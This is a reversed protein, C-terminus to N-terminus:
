EDLYCMTIPILLQCVWIVAKYWLLWSRINRVAWCNHEELFTQFLCELRCCKTGWLEKIMKYLNTPEFSCVDVGEACLDMQCITSINTFPRIDRVREAFQLVYLDLAKGCHCLLAVRNSIDKCVTLATNILWAPQHANSALPLKACIKCPLTGGVAMWWTSM